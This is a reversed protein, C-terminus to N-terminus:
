QFSKLWNLAAEKKRFIQTIVAPKTMKLYFNGLLILPLNEMYFASALSYSNGRPSALYEMTEKNIRIYETFYFLTPYKKGGGIEAIADLTIKLDDISFEKKNKITICMIGDKRLKVITSSTIIRTEEKEVTAPYQIIKKELDIQFSLLQM